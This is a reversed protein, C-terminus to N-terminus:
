RPLFPRARSGRDGLVPFGPELHLEEIGRREAGPLRRDEAREAGGEVGAVRVDVRQLVHLADGLSRSSEADAHELADLHHPHPARRRVQADLGRAARDRGPLEHEGAAHPRAPQRTVEVHCERELSRLAVVDLEGAM